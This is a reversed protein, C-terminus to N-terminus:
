AFALMQLNFITEIRRLTETNFSSDCTEELMLEKDDHVTVSVEHVEHKPVELVVDDTDLKSGFNDEEEDDADEDKRIHSRLGDAFWIQYLFCFHYLVVFSFLIRCLAELYQILM